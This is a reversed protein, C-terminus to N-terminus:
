IVSMQDCNQPVFTHLIKVQKKSENLKACQKLSFCLSFTTCFRSSLWIFFTIRLVWAPSKRRELPVAVLSNRDKNGIIWRLCRTQQYTSSTLGRCLQAFNIKYTNFRQRMLNFFQRRCSGTVSLRILSNVIRIMMTQMGDHWWQAM